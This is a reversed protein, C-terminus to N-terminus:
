VWLLQNCGCGQGEKFPKGDLEGKLITDRWWKMTKKLGLTANGENVLTTGEVSEKGLRGRLWEAAKHVLSVKEPKAGMEALVQDVEDSTVGLWRVQCLQDKADEREQETLDEFHELCRDQDDESLGEIQYELGYPKRHNWKMPLLQRKGDKAREVVLWASRVANVWGVSGLVMKVASRTEGKGLHAILFFTVKYKRAIICLPDLLARVETDKYCDIGARGAFASAPDIIVARIDPNERLREELATHNAMSWLSVKGEASELGDIFHVRDLNAGSALLKPVVTDEPDDECSAVLVEGEVPDYDLGCACTGNTIHSALDFMLTSKGAGGDGALLVLKGLPFIGKVLYRYVKCQIDSARTTKLRPGPVKSYIGDCVHYLEEEQVEEQQRELLDWNPEEWDPEEYVYRPQQGGTGDWLEGLTAAHDNGEYGSPKHKGQKEQAEEAVIRRIGTKEPM